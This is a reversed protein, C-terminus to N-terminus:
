GGVYQSIEEVARLRRLYINDVVAGSALVEGDVIDKGSKGVVRLASEDYEVEYKKGNALIIDGEYIPVFEIDTGLKHDIRWDPNKLVDFVPVYSKNLPCYFVVNRKRFALFYPLYIKQTWLAMMNVARVNM